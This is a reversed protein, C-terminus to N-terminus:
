FWLRNKLKQWLSKESKDERLREANTNSDIIASGDDDDNNFYREKALRDWARGSDIEERSWRPAWKVKNHRIWYHSQCDFSWNGISPYLSISEGDFTLQWYARSLPTVVENGCGCCCKHAVIAFTVSVYITWDKLRNPIYEVFEHTLITEPKM